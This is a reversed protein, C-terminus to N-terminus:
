TYPCCPCSCCEIIEMLYLLGLRVGQQVTPFIEETISAIPTLEFKTKGGQQRLINIFDSDENQAKQKRLVYDLITESRMTGNHSYHYVANLDFAGSEVIVRFADNSQAHFSRKLCIVYNKHTKFINTNDSSLFKIQAGDNRDILAHLGVMFSEAKVRPVLEMGFCNFYSFITIIAVSRLFYNHNKM